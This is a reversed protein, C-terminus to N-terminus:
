KVDPDFRGAALSNTVSRKAERTGTTRHRRVWVERRGGGLGHRPSVTEMEVHHPFGGLVSDHFPHDHHIGPIVGEDGVLTVANREAIADRMVREFVRVPPIRTWVRVVYRCM